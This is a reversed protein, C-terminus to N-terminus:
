RPSEGSPLSHGGGGPPWGARARVEARLRRYELWTFAIVFADLVTLAVMGLSGSISYRYMQYAGFAAFVAIAVPYAWLKSRLLAWVLVVKLVGHALLYVAAFRTAGVSLQGAWRMLHTAVLDHPDRSLEHQTLVAVTRGIQRPSLVLLVAAGGLELLGDIGKLVVGLQFVAHLAGGRGSGPPRDGERGAPGGGSAPRDAGAGGAQGEGSRDRLEM